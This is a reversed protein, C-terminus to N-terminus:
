SVNELGESELGKSLDELVNRINTEVITELEYDSKIGSYYSSITKPLTLLKTKIAVVITTWNKEIDAIPILEKKKISVELQLKETRARSEKAKEVSLDWDGKETNRFTYWQICDESLYQNSQKGQGGKTHVPMGEDTWNNISTRTVGFIDALQQTTVIM